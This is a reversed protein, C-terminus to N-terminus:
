GSGTPRLSSWDVSIGGAALREHLYAHRVGFDSVRVSDVGAAAAAEALLLAGAPLVAARGPDLRVVELRESVRLGALRHATAAIVRCTLVHGRIRAPAHSALGLDIAALTTATGGSVVMQAGAARGAALVRAAAFTARLSEGLSAMEAPSPPDGRVHAETLALAGVAHSECQWVAAGRGLAVETTAGGADVVLLPAGSLPLALLAAAYALEAERVGSLVEIAVGSADGLARVVAVGNAAHRAAGTAFAWVDSAGATRARQTLAVVQECTRAAAEDGIIGGALLGTGLRTTALAEDVLRARGREVAVTLLLVSNSGVDLVAFVGGPAPAAQSTM